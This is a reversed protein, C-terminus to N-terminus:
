SNLSIEESIKGADILTKKLLFFLLKSTFLYTSICLGFCQTSNFGPGASGLELRYIVELRQVVPGQM